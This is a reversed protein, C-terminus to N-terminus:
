IQLLLLNDIYPLGLLPNAVTRFLLCQVPFSVTLVTIYVCHIAINFRMAAGTWNQLAHLQIFVSKYSSFSHCHSVSPCHSVILVKVSYSMTVSQSVTIIHSVTVSHSMTILFHSLSVGPVIHCHSLTVIDVLLYITRFHSGPSILRSPQSGLKQLDDNDTLLFM